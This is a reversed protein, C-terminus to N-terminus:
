FRAHVNLYTVTFYDVLHNKRFTFSQITSAHIHVFPATPLKLYADSVSEDNHRIAGYWFVNFICLSLCHAYSMVNPHTRTVM